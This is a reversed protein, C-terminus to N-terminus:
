TMMKWAGTFVQMMLWFDIAVLVWAQSTLKMVLSICGNEFGNMQDIGDWNDDLGDEDLLFNHLVCCTLWIKNTLEIGHLTIGRKLVAFRSKLIGFTCEVDKRMSEIWKSFRFEQWTSPSTIPPILTSWSLYGNDVVLWVGVYRVKRITGDVPDAQLLEFVIDSYKRGDRLDTSLNDYLVLTKDNWRGPHGCTSSLIRRRHNVTSNYTRTPM